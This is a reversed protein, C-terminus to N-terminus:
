CFPNCDPNILGSVYQTNSFILIQIVDFAQRKQKHLWSFRLAGKMLIIFSTIRRPPFECFKKRLNKINKKVKPRLIKLNYDNYTTKSASIM